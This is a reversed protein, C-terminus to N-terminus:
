RNEANNVAQEVGKLFRSVSITVSARLDSDVPKGEENVGIGAVQDMTKGKVYEAFAAAEENWEKGISSAQKMGYREGLQMKSELRDEQETIEDIVCDRIVGAEDVAVAVVLVDNEETEGTMVALGMRLEGGTPQETVVEGSCGGLASICMVLAIILAWTKKVNM